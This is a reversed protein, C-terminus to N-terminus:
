LGTLTEAQLVKPGKKAALEVAEGEHLTKYEDMMIASFHLLVEEGTQSQLFGCGKSANFWKVTGQEKVEV